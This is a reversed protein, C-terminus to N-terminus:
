PLQPQVKSFVLGAVEAVAPVLGIQALSLVVLQAAMSVQLVGLLKMSRHLDALAVWTFRSVKAQFQRAHLRLSVVLVQIVLLVRAARQGLLWLISVGLV